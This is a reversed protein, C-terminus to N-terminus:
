EAMVRTKSSLIKTYADSFPLVEVGKNKLMDIVTQFKEKSYEVDKEPENEVIDHWVLVLWSGDAIAKDIRQEIKQLSTHSSITVANISSPVIFGQPQAFGDISRGTTFYEMVQSLNSADYGGNPYAFHERGKYNNQYLYDYM